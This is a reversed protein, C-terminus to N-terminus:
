CVFLMCACRCHLPHAHAAPAAEAAVMHAAASARDGFYADLIAVPPVACRGHALLQSTDIDFEACGAPAVFHPLQVNPQEATDDAAAQAIRDPTASADVCQKNASLVYPVQVRLAQGDQLTVCADDYANLLAEKAHAHGWRARREGALLNAAVLPQVKTSGTVEVDGAPGHCGASPETAAAHLCKHSSQAEVGRNALQQCGNQGQVRQQGAVLAQRMLLADCVGGKHTNSADAGHCALPRTIAPLPLSEAATSLSAGGAAVRRLLGVVAPPLQGEAIEGVSQANSFAEVAACRLSRERREAAALLPGALAACGAMASLLVSTPIVLLQCSTLARVSAWLPQRLVASSLGIVSGVGTTHIAIDHESAVGAADPHWLGHAFVAVSCEMGCSGQLVIYVCQSVEHTALLHEDESVHVVRAHQLMATAEQVPLQGLLPCLRTLEALAPTAEPAIRLASALSEAPMILACTDAACIYRSSATTRSNDAACCVQGATVHVAHRPPSAEVSSAASSAPNVQSTDTMDDSGLGPAVNDEANADFAADPAAAAASKLSVGAAADSASSRRLGPQAAKCFAGSLVFYCNHPPPASGAHGQWLTGHSTLAHRLHWPLWRCLVCTAVQSLLSFQHFM